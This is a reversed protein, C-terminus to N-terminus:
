NLPQAASGRKLLDAINLESDVITNWNQKFINCINGDAM